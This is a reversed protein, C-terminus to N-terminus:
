PRIMGLIIYFYRLRPKEIGLILCLSLSIVNHLGQGKVKLKFVKITKLNFNSNWELWFKLFLRPNEPPFKLAFPSRRKVCLFFSFFFALVRCILFIFNFIFIFLLFLLTLLACMGDELKGIKSELDENKKNSTVYLALFIISLVLVLVLFILLLTVKKGASSKGGKVTLQETSMNIAASSM